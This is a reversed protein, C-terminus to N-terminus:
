VDDNEQPAKVATEEARKRNRFEDIEEKSMFELYANPSDENKRREEALVKVILKGGPQVQKLAELVQANVTVSSFNAGKTLWLPSISLNFKKKTQESM